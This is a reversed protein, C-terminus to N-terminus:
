LGQRWSPVARHFMQLVPGGGTPGIDKLREEWGKTPRWLRAPDRSIHAEAKEKLVAQRKEKELDELERQQKKQLKAGLKHLDREQFHQILQSAERRREEMEVHDRAEKELLRQEEQEKRQQCHAQVALKVEAQKRREEQAKRRRELEEKMKQDEVEQRRHERQNRWEQLQKAAGMREQQTLRKQEEVSGRNRREEEQQEEHKQLQQQKEKQRCTRWRDIAERKKEQLERLMLFWDEHLRVEEETRHPLHLAAERRYSAKGGHRTWLKLFSQHDYQDWGGHQGGTQQLFTELASVEPPLGAKLVASSPGRPLAAGPKSAFSWTEIKKQFACVQQWCTREEKLLEEFSQHQQERFGSIMDEVETMTAKLKEILLDSPRADCLDRQFRSVAQNIKMLHQQVRINEANLEEKLTVHAEELAGFAHSPCSRLWVEKECKEVLTKLQAAKRAFGAGGAGDASQRQKCAVGGTALAAM